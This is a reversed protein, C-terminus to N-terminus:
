VETKPKVQLFPRPPLHKQSKPSSPNIAMGDIRDDGKMWRNKKMWKLIEIADENGAEAESRLFRDWQESQLTKKISKRSKM